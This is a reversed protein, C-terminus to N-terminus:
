MNGNIEQDNHHNFNLFMLTGSEIDSQNDYAAYNNFKNERFDQLLCILNTWEDIHVECPNEIKCLGWMAGCLLGYEKIICLTSASM